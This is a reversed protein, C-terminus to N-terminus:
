NRLLNERENAENGNEEQGVDEVNEVNGVIEERAEGRTTSAQEIQREFEFHEFEAFFIRRQLLEVVGWVILFFIFLLAIMLFLEVVTLM